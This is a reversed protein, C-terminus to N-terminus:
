FVQGHLFDILEKIESINLFKYTISDGEINIEIDGDKDINNFNKNGYHKMIMKKM